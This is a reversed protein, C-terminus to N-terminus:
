ATSCAPTAGRTNDPSVADSFENPTPPTPGRAPQELRRLVAHHYRIRIRTLDSAV